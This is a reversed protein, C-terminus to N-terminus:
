PSALVLRHRSVMHGLGLEHVDEELVAQPLFLPKQRQSSDGHFGKGVEKFLTNPFVIWPISGFVPNDVVPLVELAEVVQDAVVRLPTELLVGVLCEEREEEDAAELLGVVKALVLGLLAHALQVLLLQQDPRQHDVDHLHRGHVRVLDPLHLHLPLGVPQESLGLGHTASKFGGEDQEVVGTVWGEEPQVKEFFFPFCFKELTFM